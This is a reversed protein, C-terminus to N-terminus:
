RMFYYGKGPIMESISPVEAEPEWFGEFNKIVSCNSSNFYVDLASTNKFPCGILLWGNEEPVTLSEEIATGSVSVTGLSNMYVLYGEGAEITSISNLQQEQGKKWFGSSNKIVEVDLTAFLTEISNDPADIYTSILNWGAQLVIEQTQEGFCSSNNADIVAHVPTRACASGVFIKWDYFFGYWDSQWSINYTFSIYDPYTYPFNADSAEFSIAGNTGVADILYEGPTLLFNLPITQKGTSLGTVTATHVVDGNQTMNITVDTNNDLVYVAVSELTLTQLVTVKNMKDDDGFGNGMSWADGTGQTTKGLTGTFGGTEAAYFTTNESITPSYTYGTELVTGGIETDYWAYNDAGVIQLSATGPECLTDGIVTLLSSTITIEDLYAEPDLRDQA